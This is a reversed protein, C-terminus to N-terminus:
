RHCPFGLLRLDAVSARCHRRRRDDLSALSTAGERTARELISVVRKAEREDKAEVAARARVELLEIRRRNAGM